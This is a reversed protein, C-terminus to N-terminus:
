SELSGLLNLLNKQRHMRATSSNSSQPEPGQMSNQASMSSGFPPRQMDSQLSNASQFSPNHMRNQSPASAARSDQYGHYKQHSNLDSAPAVSKNAFPSTSHQNSFNDDSYAVGYSHRSLSQYPSTSPESAYSNVRHERTRSVTPAIFMPIMEDRMNQDSYSTVSSHRISPPYSLMPRESAYLDPVREQPTSGTRANSRSILEDRTERDNYSTTSSHRLTPSRSSVPTESEHSYTSCERHAYLSSIKSRSIIEDRTNQDNFPTTSSHRSQPQYPSSPLESVNSHSRGERGNYLSPRAINQFIEDRLMPGLDTNAQTTVPRCKIMTPLQSSSRTHASNAAGTSSSSTDHAYAAKIHSQYGPYGPPPGPLGVPPKNHLALRGFHETVNNADVPKITTSHRASSLLPSFEFPNVPGQMNTASMFVTDGALEPISVQEHRLECARVQEDKKEWAYGDPTVRETALPNLSIRSGSQEPTTKTSTFIRRGGSGFTSTYAPPPDPSPSASWMASNTPGPSNTNHSSISSPYQFQVTQSVPHHTYDRVSVTRSILWSSYRPRAICKGMSKEADKVEGCPPKWVAKRKHRSLIDDLFSADVYDTDEPLVPRDEFHTLYGLVNSLQQHCATLETTRNLLREHDNFSWKVRTDLQVKGTAEQEARAREVWLGIDELASKTNTVASNIWPLKNPTANLRLQVSAINLIRVVENLDERVVRIARVFVENEIASEAIRITVDAVRFASGIGAFIAGISIPDCMHAYIKDVLTQTKRSEQSANSVYLPSVLEPVVM